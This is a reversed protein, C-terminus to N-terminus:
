EQTHSDLSDYMINAFFVLSSLVLIIGRLGNVKLEHLIGELFRKLVKKDDSRNYNKFSTDDNCIARKLFVVNEGPQM